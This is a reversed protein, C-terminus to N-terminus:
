LKRFSKEQLHALGTEESFVQLILGLLASQSPGVAKKFCTYSQMNKRSGHKRKSVTKMFDQKNESEM